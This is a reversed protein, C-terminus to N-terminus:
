LIWCFLGFLAVQEWEAHPSRFREAENLTLTGHQKPTPHSSVQLPFFLRGLRYERERLEGNDPDRECPPLGSSGHPL